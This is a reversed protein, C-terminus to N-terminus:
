GRRCINVTKEDKIGQPQPWVSDQEQIAIRAINEKENLKSM